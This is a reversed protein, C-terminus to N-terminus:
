TGSDVFGPSPSFCTVPFPRQGVVLSDYRWDGHYAGSPLAAEMTTALTVQWATGQPRWSADEVSFILEGGEVAEGRQPGRQTRDRDLRERDAARVVRDGSGVGPRERRGRHAAAAVVM